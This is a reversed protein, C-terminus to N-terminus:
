IRVRVANFAEDNVQRWGEDIPTIDAYQLNNREIEQLAEDLEYRAAASQHQQFQEGDFYLTIGPAPTRTIYNM